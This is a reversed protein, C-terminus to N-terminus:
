KEAEIRMRPDIWSYALDVLLNCIILIGGFM